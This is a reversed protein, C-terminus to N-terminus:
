YVMMFLDNFFDLAEEYLARAKALEELLEANTKNSFISDYNETRSENVTSKDMGALISTQPSTDIPSLFQDNEVTRPDIKMESELKSTRILLEPLIEAYMELKIKYREVCSDASINFWIRFLEATEFGIEKVCNKEYLRKWFPVGAQDAPMNEVLTQPFILSPANEATPDKGQRELELNVWDVFLMTYNAYGM